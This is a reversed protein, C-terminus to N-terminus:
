LCYPNNMYCLEMDSEEDLDCGLSRVCNVFGKAKGANFSGEGFCPYGEESTNTEWCDQKCEEMGSPYESDFEDTRCTQAWPCITACYDTVFSEGSYDDKDCSVFAFSLFLLLVLAYRQPKM